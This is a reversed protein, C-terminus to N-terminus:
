LWASAPLVWELCLLLLQELCFWGCVWAAASVGASSDLFTILLYFLLATLGYFYFALCSYFAFLPSSACAPSCPLLSFSYTAPLVVTLAPMDTTSDMRLACLVWM